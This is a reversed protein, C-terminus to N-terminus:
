ESELLADDALHLRRLLPRKKAQHDRMRELIDTLVGVAELIHPGKNLMVCEARVSMAADTIEARSPLGTKALSELVQTAWIVPLHAAECMWLIEEQVEALRRWGLEVALDGRAIMVGSTQGELAALLLSPLREFAQRNEIKLVIPLDPRGHRVLEERLKRVDRPRRVFSYGVIDAERSVFALDERDKDTLADLRLETDPLNIGKDSRLVAGEPPVAVVELVAEDPHLERVVCGIKGDDLLVRQEVRLDNFVSSLTCGIRAPTVVCGTEDYVAPAGVVHENGLVLRDGRRLLLRAERPSIEGIRGVTEHASHRGARWLELGPAFYITSVSECRLAGPLREVVSIQRYRGRTDCLELEDGAHVTELLSATAPDVPVVADAAPLKTGPGRTSLWFRGPVVVRGLDDRKPHCRIVAAGPVIPGTRVKPGGLDMLIRCNRGTAALAARLHGIMRAWVAADDHACNVRMCDMGRAVLSRILQGGDDAAATPMTVMIHLDRQVPREGFLGACSRDLLTQGATFGPGHLGGRAPCDAGSLRCLVDIVTAITAQVNAECRGLSSLGRARLGDQLARLDHRRLAVYHLLNVASARNHEPIEALRSAAQQELGSMATLLERLQGLLPEVALRSWDIEDGQPLSAKDM